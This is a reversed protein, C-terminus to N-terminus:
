PRLHSTVRGGGQAEIRMLATDLPEFRVAMHHANAHLLTNSDYLMAVHGKWFLLDGRRPPTDKPLPPGLTREQQHSDGPCARGCALFAAQVLGSCDLGFWSNGGWLYPSGLFLEAVDLPDNMYTGAPTLHVAPVYGDKTQAFNDKWGLVAINSGFSLSLQDESKLDPAKYIHTAPASVWHTAQQLLEIQTAQIYGGYGDKASQVHSWGNQTARITVTDGFLLQRDRPGDPSRMLDAVPVAIQAIMARRINDPHNM